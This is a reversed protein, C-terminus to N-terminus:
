QAMSAMKSVAGRNTIDIDGLVALWIQRKLQKQAINAIWYSEQDANRSRIQALDAFQNTDLDNGVFKNGETSQSALWLVDGHAGARLDNGCVSEATLIKVPWAGM